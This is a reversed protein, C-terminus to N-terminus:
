SYEGQSNCDCWGDEHVHDEDHIHNHNEYFALNREQSVDVSGYIYIIRDKWLGNIILLTM